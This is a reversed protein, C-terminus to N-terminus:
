FYCPYGFKFNILDTHIPMTLEEDQDMTQLNYISVWHWRSLKGDVNHCRPPNVVICNIIGSGAFKEALRGIFDFM